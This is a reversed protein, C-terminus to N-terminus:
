PQNTMEKIIRTRISRFDGRGLWCKFCRQQLGSAKERAFSARFHEYSRTHLFIRPQKIRFHEHSLKSISTRFTPACCASTSFNQRGRRPFMKAIGVDHKIPGVHFCETVRTMLGVHFCKQGRPFMKADARRPFM